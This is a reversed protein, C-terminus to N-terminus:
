CRERADTGIVDSVGARMRELTAEEVCQRFKTDKLWSQDRDVEAIDILDDSIWEFSIEGNRVMYLCAIYGGIHHTHRGAPVKCMPGIRFDVDGFDAVTMCVRMGTEFRRDDSAREFLTIVREDKPRFPCGVQEKRRQENVASETQDPSAGTSETDSGEFDCAEDSSMLEVSNTSAADGVSRSNTSAADGM